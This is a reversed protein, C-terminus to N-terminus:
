KKVTLKSVSWHIGMEGLSFGLSGLLFYDLGQGTCTMFVIGSFSCVAMYPMVFAKFLAPVDKM